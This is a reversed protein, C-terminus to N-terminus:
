RRSHLQEAILRTMVQYAELPSPRRLITERNADGIQLRRVPDALLGVLHEALTADDGAPALTEVAGLAERVGPTDTAVVALGAAMPELVGNPCGESRSSYM